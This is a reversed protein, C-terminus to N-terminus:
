RKKFPYYNMKKDELKLIEYSRIIKSFKQRLEFLLEYFEKESFVEIEVEIEWPGAYKIAQVINSNNKCFEFFEKERDENFNLFNFMLKYYSIGLKEYNLSTRFTQIVGKKVLQKIRYIVVDRSTKLKDALELNTQSADRSLEVLLNHELKDVDVVRDIEKYQFEDGSKNGILYEKTYTPSEIIQSISREKIYDGYKLNLQKTLESIESVNKVLYSVSLDWSGYAKVCWIVKPHRVFFDIIKEEKEHTVDQLKLLFKYHLFGLTPTNLVVYKNKIVGEKEYNRIRYSVAEKSLRLPKGIKKASERANKDLNYLIKWDRSDLKM